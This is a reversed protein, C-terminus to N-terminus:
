TPIQTGANTHGSSEGLVQFTMTMLGRNDSRIQKSQRTSCRMNKRHALLGGGVLGRGEMWLKKEDEAGENCRDAM